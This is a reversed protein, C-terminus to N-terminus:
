GSALRVDQGARQDNRAGSSRAAARTQRILACLKAVWSGTRAGRLGQSPVSTM